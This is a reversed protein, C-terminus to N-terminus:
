YMYDTKFRIKWEKENRRRKGYHANTNFTKFNNQKTMYLFDHLETSFLGYNLSCRDFNDSESAVPAIKCSQLNYTFQSCHM